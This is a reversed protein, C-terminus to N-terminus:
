AIRGWPGRSEEICRPCITKGYAEKRCFHCISHEEKIPEDEGTTVHDSQNIIMLMSSPTLM